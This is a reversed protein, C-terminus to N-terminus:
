LPMIKVIVIAIFIFKTTLTGVISAQLINPIFILCFSYLIFLLSIFLKNFFYIFRIAVVIISLVQGSIGIIIM